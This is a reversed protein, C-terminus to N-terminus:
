IIDGIELVIAELLEVNTWKNIEKNAFAFMEGELCLGNERAQFYIRERIRDLITTGM